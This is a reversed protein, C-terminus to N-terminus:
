EEPPEMLVETITCMCNPHAPPGAIDGYDPDDSVHAFKGGIPIEGREDMIEKCLDCADASALWRFGKVIGSNVAAILQGQHVARSAETIAIQQARWHEAQDFVSSVRRTLEAVTNTDPGLIGSALEDRLKDIAENIKMSTTQNTSACFRMAARDIAEQVKPNQVNWVEESTSVGTRAIFDKAGEEYHMQILPHAQHKMKETWGSLNVKRFEKIRIQKPESVLDKLVEKHQQRFISRLFKSIERGEPLRRRHGGKSTDKHWDDKPDERVHEHKHGCGCMCGIKADLIFPVPYTMRFADQKKWGMAVLSRIVVDRPSEECWYDILLSAVKGDQQDQQQETPKAPPPESPEDEKPTFNIAAQVMAAAQQEDFGMAVLIYRAVEPSTMGNSVDRLMTEAREADIGTIREVPPIGAEDPKGAGGVPQTPEDTSVDVDVDEEEDWIMMSPQVKTGDMWPEEGWEVPEKGDEIREENITTTAAAINANRLAIKDEIDEPVPNDFAVFLRDDFLPCFQSNLVGQIRKCRPGIANRAHQARGAMANAKNVDKTELMSIPVGYGNALDIRTIGYLALIQMDKPSFNLPKLDADGDAIFIGDNGGRRFKEKFRQILRTIGARGLPRKPILMLDPRARNDILTQQYSLHSGMLAVSEYVARTPSIGPGYPDKMNPFKFHVIESEEFTEERVGRKVKYTVDGTTEDRKMTVLHPAIIWIKEPVGLSNLELWWYANGEFEQCLDTLEWLTYGDLRANTANLIDLIPHELVEEIEVAGKLRMSMDPSSRLYRDMGKTIRRTSIKVKPQGRSRQVFLRLPTAAVTQANLNACAYATGKYSDLLERKTPARKTKWADLFGLSEGAQLTVYREAVQKALWNIMGMPKVKGYTLTPNM